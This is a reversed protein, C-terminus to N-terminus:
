PKGGFTKRWAEQRELVRAPDIWVVVDTKTKKAIIKANEIGLNRKGKLLYHIMTKSLLEM